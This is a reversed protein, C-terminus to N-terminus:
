LYIIISGTLAEESTLKKTLYEVYKDSQMRPYDVNTDDISIWGDTEDNQKILEKFEDRVEYKKEEISETSKLQKTSASVFRKQSQLMEQVENYEKESKKYQYMTNTIGYSAYIFIAVSLVMIVTSTIRHSLFARLKKM